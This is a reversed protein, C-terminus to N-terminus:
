AYVRVGWAHDSTGPRYRAYHETMPAATILRFPPLNLIDEGRRYHKVIVSTSFLPPTKLTFEPPSGSSDEASTRCATFLALAMLVLALFLPLRRQLTILSPAIRM